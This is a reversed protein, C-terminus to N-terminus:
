MSVARAYVTLSSHIPWAKCCLPRRSSNTMAVLHRAMVASSIASSSFALRRLRRVSWISSYWNWLGLGSSKSRMMAGPPASSANFLAWATPMTSCMPTVAWRAAVKSFASAQGSMSVMM